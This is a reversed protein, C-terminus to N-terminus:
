RADKVETDKQKLSYDITIRYFEVKNEKFQEWISSSYLTTIHHKLGNLSRFGHGELLGRNKDYTSYKVPRVSKVLAKAIVKTKDGELTSLEIPKSVESPRKRLLAGLRADLVRVTEDNTLIM